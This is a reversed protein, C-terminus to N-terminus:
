ISPVLQHYIGQNAGSGRCFLLYACVLTFFQTQSGVPFCHSCWGLTFNPKNPKAMRIKPVRIPYYTKALLYCFVTTFSSEACYSENKTESIPNSNPKFQTQRKTFDDNEASFRPFNPKNQMFLRIQRINEVGTSRIERCFVSSPRCIVSSSPRNIRM